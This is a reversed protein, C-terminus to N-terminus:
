SMVQIQIKLTAKNSGQQIGMSNKYIHSARIMTHRLHELNQAYQPEKSSLSSYICM